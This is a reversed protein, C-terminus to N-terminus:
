AHGGGGEGGARDEAVGPDAAAALELASDFREPRTPDVGCLELADGGFQARRSAIAQDLEAEPPVVRRDRLREREVVLHEVGSDRDPRDRRSERAKRILGARDIQGAVERDGATLALVRRELHGLPEVGIVVVEDRLDPRVGLETEGAVTQHALDRLRGGGTEDGARHQDSRDREEQQALRRLASGGVEGRQGPQLVQQRDIALEEAAQGSAPAVQTWSSSGARTLSDM